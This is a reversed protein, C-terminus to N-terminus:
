EEKRDKNKKIIEEISAEFQKRIPINQNPDDLGHENRFTTLISFCQEQCNEHCSHDQWPIIARKNINYFLYVPRDDRFDYGILVGNKLLINIKKEDEEREQKTRGQVSRDLRFNDSFETLAKKIKKLALSKFKSISRVDVEKQLRGDEVIREWERREKILVDKIVEIEVKPTKFLERIVVNESDSLLPTVKRSEM